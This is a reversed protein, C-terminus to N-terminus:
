SLRENANREKRIVWADRLKQRHEESLKKGTCWCIQGKHNESMKRKSEESHKRGKNSFEKGLNSPMRGKLTASIRQREEEPRVRGLAYKNGKSKLGIKKKHEETHVHGLNYKHGKMRESTKHRNEISVIQGKHAESLKRRTEDSSKRGRASASADIAINYDHKTILNDLCKQEYFLLMDVDCYLIVRFIFNSDGYKDWARQLCCNRHDRRKLGSIHDFFRGKIDCSSGVYRHGNITNVIEYVGSIKNNTKQSIIM